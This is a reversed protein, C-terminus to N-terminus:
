TRLYDKNETVADYDSYADLRLIDTAASDAQRSPLRSSWPEQKNKAVM